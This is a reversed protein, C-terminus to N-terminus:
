KKINNMLLLINKTDFQVLAMFIYGGFHVYAAQFTLVLADTAVASLVSRYTEM